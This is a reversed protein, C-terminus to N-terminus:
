SVNELRLKVKNPYTAILDASAGLVWMRRESTYPGKRDMEVSIFGKDALQKIYRIITREPKQFVTMFYANTKNCVGGEHRCVSGIEAVLLKAGDPIKSALIKRSVM